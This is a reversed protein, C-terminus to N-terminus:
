DREACLIFWHLRGPQFDPARAVPDRFDPFELLQAIRLGAQAVATVIGGMTHPWQVSRITEGTLNAPNPDPTEEHYSPGSKFYNKGQRRAFPHVDNLLLSGGPKLALSVIHCWAELDGIWNSAGSCFVIDFAGRLLQDPLRLFDATVTDCALSEAKAQRQVAQLRLPSVDVGVVSAGRRAWELTLAGQGCGLDLLRKGTVEALLPLNKDILVQPNHLGDDAPDILGLDHQRQIYEWLGRNLAAAETLTTM